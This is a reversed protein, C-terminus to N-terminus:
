IVVMKIHTDYVGNWDKRTKYNTITKTFSPLSTLWSLNWCLKRCKKVSLLIQVASSPVHPVLVHKGPCPAISAMPAPVIGNQTVLSEAHLNWGQLGFTPPKIATVDSPRLNWLSFCVDQCVSGLAEVNGLSALCQLKSFFIGKYASKKKWYVKNVLSFCPVKINVWAMFNYLFTQPCFWHCANISCRNDVPCCGPFKDGFYLLVLSSCM